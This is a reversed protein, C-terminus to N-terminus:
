LCEIYLSRKLCPANPTRSCQQSAFRRLSLNDVNQGNNPPRSAQAPDQEEDEFFKLHPMSGLQWDLLHWPSTAQAARTCNFAHMGM